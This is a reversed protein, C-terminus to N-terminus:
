YSWSGLRSRRASDVLEPTEARFTPELAVHIRVKYLDRYEDLERVFYDKSEFPEKCYKEKAYENPDWIRFMM